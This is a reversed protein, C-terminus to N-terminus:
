LKYNKSFKKIPCICFHKLGCDDCDRNKLFIDPRFCNDKTEKECGERSKALNVTKTKRNVDIKPLDKRIKEARDELEERSLFKTPKPVYETNEIKDRKAILRQNQRDFKKCNKCKTKTIIDLITPYIEKETLDKKFLAEALIKKVLANGMPVKNKKCSCCVIEKYPLKGNEKYFDLWKKLDELQNPKPLKKTRPKKAKM